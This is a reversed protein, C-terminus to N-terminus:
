ISVYSLANSLMYGPSETFYQKLISQVQSNFLFVTNQTFIPSTEFEFRKNVGAILQSAVMLKCSPARSTPKM